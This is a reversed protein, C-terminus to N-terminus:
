AKADPAVARYDATTSVMETEQYDGGAGNRREAAQLWVLASPSNVDYPM